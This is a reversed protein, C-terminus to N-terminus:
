VTVTKFTKEPLEFKAGNPVFGHNDPIQLKDRTILHHIKSQGFILNNM